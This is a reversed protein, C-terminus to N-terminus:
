CPPFIGHCAIDARGGLLLVGVGNEHGKGSLRGLAVGGTRLGPLQHEAPLGMQHLEAAAAVLLLEAAQRVQVAPVVAKCLNQVAVAGACGVEHALGDLGIQFGQSRRRAGACFRRRGRQRLCN